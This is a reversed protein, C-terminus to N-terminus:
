TDADIKARAASALFASRTIGLDDAAEDIAELLGAELTINAKVTRAAEPQVPLIVMRALEDQAQEGAALLETFSRPVPVTGGKAQVHAIWERAASKADDIAAKPTAGGGYVGPLDPFRAGWVGDKGDLIAIYQM